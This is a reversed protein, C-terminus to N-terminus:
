WITSDRRSGSGTGAAGGGAAPKRLSVTRTAGGSALPAHSRYGQRTNTESYRRTAHEIAGAAESAAWGIRGRPGGSARISCASRAQAAVHLRLPFGGANRREPPRHVGRRSEAAPGIESRRSQCLTTERGCCVHAQLLCRWGGTRHMSARLVTLNLSPRAGGRARSIALAEPGASLSPETASRRYARNTKGLTGLFGISSGTGGAANKPRSLESSSCSNGLSRHVGRRV